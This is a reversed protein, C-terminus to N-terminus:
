ILNIFRACCWASYLVPLSVQKKKPKEQMGSDALRKQAKIHQKEVKAEYVRLYTEDGIGSALSATTNSMNKAHMLAEKSPTYLKSQKPMSSPPFLQPPSPFSCSILLHSHFLPKHILLFDICMTQATAIQSKVWQPKIQQM